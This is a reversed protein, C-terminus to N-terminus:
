PWRTSHGCPSLPSCIAPAALSGSPWEHRRVPGERRGRNTSKSNPRRTIGIPLIHPMADVAKADRIDCAYTGTKGPFGSGFETILVKKGEFLDDRYM